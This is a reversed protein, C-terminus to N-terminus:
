KSMPKGMISRSAKSMNVKKHSQREIEPAVLVRSRIPSAPIPRSGTGAKLMQCQQTGPGPGKINDRDSINDTEQRQSNVITVCHSDNYSM